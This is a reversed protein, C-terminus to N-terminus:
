PKQNIQNNKRQNSVQLAYLLWASALAGFLYHFLDLWSFSNGILTVGMFTSRIAELFVPHWLQLFELACTLLLVVSAIVWPRARILIASAVLSWFVVYLVGGLSNNVWHSAPGTYFKSYFGLPTIIGIAVLTWRRLYIYSAINLQMMM